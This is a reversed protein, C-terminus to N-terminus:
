FCYIFYIFGQFVSGLSKYIFDGLYKLGVHLLVGLAQFL